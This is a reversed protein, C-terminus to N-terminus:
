RRRGISVHIGFRWLARRLLRRLWREFRGRWHWGALAGWIAALGLTTAPGTLGIWHALAAWALWSFAAWLVWGPLAFGRRRRRSM